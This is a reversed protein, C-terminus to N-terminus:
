ITKYIWLLSMPASYTALINHCESLLDSQRLIDLNGRNKLLLHQKTVQSLFYWDQNLKHVGTLNGLAVESVSTTVKLNGEAVPESIRILKSEVHLLSFLIYDFYFVFSSFFKTPMIQVMCDTSTETWRFRKYRWFM